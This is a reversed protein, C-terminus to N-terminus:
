GYGDDEEMEIRDDTAPLIYNGSGCVPCFPGDEDALYEHACDACEVIM